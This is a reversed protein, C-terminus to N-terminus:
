YLVWRPGVKVLDSAWIGNRTAWSPRRTLAKGAKRWPGAPSSSESRPALGGTSVGVYRGRYRAVSPDAFSRHRAVPKRVQPGTQQTTQQTHAPPTAGAPVGTGLGTMLGTMLAVALVARAVVRATTGTM